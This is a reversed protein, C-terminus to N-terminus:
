QGKGFLPHLVCPAGSRFSFRFFAFRFCGPVDQPPLNPFVPSAPLFALRSPEGVGLSDGDTHYSDTWCGRVPAPSPDGDSVWHPRLRPNFPHGGRPAPLSHRAGSGQLDGRAPRPRSAVPHAGARGLRSPPSRRPCM